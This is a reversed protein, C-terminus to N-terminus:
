DTYVITHSRFASFIHTLHYHGFDDHHSARIACPACAITFTYRVCKKIDTAAIAFDTLREIEEFEQTSQDDAQVDEEVQESVCSM